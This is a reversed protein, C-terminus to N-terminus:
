NFSDLFRLQDAIAKEFYEGEYIEFHTIPYTNVEVPAEMNELLRVHSVPSVLGDDSCVLIQVPCKVKCALKLPDKIHPLLSLRACTENKFTGSSEALKSIGDLAGPATIMAVTGPKGYAPFTHPSLGFRSRGKDRQGHVFLKLFFGLGEREMYAKSDEKHDFSGCQSIIGAIMFDEAAVNIGYVAGASTGWLIIRNEDVDERSRSYSIASKLDEVQYPGCYLQRPFGESDGFFRYDYTLVSYGARVFKLAYQELKMDKTGCFGHNMVICPSQENKGSKYFWASIRSEKVSFSVDERCIPIEGPLSGRIVPQPEVNLIPFFIVIILYFLIFCIIGFIIFVAM